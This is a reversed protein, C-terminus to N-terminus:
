VARSAKRASIKIKTQAASLKKIKRTEVSSEDYM